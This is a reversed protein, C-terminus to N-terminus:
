SRYHNAVLDPDTLPASFLLPPQDNYLQSNGLCCNEENILKCLKSMHDCDWTILASFQLMLIFM